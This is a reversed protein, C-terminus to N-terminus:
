ARVSRENGGGLPIVFAKLGGLAGVRRAAEVALALSWFADGHGGESEAASLANTVQLISKRQRDDPLLTMDQREICLNFAGALRNKLDATFVLGGLEMAAPLRGEELALSLEGRTADYLCLKVELETFLKRLEELQKTYPENDAWWSAIQYLKHEYPLLVACHSPHRLKGIDLGAVTGEIRWQNSQLWWAPVQAGAFSILKQISM